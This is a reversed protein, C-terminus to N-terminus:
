FNFLLYMATAVFRRKKHYYNFCSARIQSHNAEEDGWIKKVVISGTCNICTRLMTDINDIKQNSHSTLFQKLLSYYKENEANFINLPIDGVEM